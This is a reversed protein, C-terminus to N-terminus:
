DGSGSGHYGKLSACSLMNYEIFAVDVKIGSVGKFVSDQPLYPAKVTIDGKIGVPANSGESLTTNYLNVQLDCSLGDSFLPQNTINVYSNRM